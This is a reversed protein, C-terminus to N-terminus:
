GLIDNVLDVDPDESRKRLLLSDIVCFFIAADRLDAASFAWYDGFLYRQSNDLFNDGTLPDLLKLSVKYWGPVGSEVVYVEANNTTTLVFRRYFPSIRISGASAYQREEPSQEPFDWTNDFRVALGLIKLNLLSFFNATQICAPKTWLWSDYERFNAGLGDELSLFSDSENHLDLSVRAGIPYENSDSDFPYSEAFFKCQNRTTLTARRADESIKLSM